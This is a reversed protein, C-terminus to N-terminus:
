VRPPSSDIRWTQYRLAAFAGGVIGAVALFSGAALTSLGSIGQGITCGLATVGGFGMLAAGALHNATDEVGAFTEWRFEKRMLAALLAGVIVGAAAAIGFTVTTNRDSWLTLLNLTYGVPTVFSLSEPRRSNTAIWAPELTDPHEPLYGLYATIFWGLVVLVGIALGGLFASSRVFARDRGIYIALALPIVAGLAIRAAVPSAGVVRAVWSPLDQTGALEIVWRDLLAVRVEALAGRLTMLAVIGMVILAVLARINGAGARILAKSACGSALVIGFGFLAGGVAYSAWLVRPGTYVSASLDIIGSVIAAQTALMAIAISTLWMRLRTADGFCFLDSLAGMTCFRTAQGIAGFAVGVAFATAPVLLALQSPSSSASM